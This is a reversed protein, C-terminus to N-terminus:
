VTASQTRCWAGFASVAAQFGSPTVSFGNMEDGPGRVLIRLSNPTRFFIVGAYGDFTEGWNTLFDLRGWSAADRAIEGDSRNDDIYLAAHVLNWVASDDLPRLMPVDLEDLHNATHILAELAGSLGSQLEEFDGIAHGECWLRMHGWVTGSSSNPTRDFEAEVAFDTPNGFIV